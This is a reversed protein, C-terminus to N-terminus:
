DSEEEIKNQGLWIRGHGEKDKKFEQWLTSLHSLVNGIAVNGKSRKNLGLDNLWLVSHGLDFWLDVINTWGSATEKPTYQDFPDIIM